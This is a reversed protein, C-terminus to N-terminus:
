NALSHRLIAEKDNGFYGKLYALRQAESWGGRIRARWGYASHTRGLGECMDLPTEGWYGAEREAFNM